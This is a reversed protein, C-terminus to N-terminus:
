PLAPLGLSLVKDGLARLWHVREADYTHRNYTAEIEPPMHGLIAEAVDKPCGLAALMTRASRRLDHPSGETVPLVARTRGLRKSKPSYPQLDYIYTSFARQSYPEGTRDMFMVGGEGASELRRTVIERAMGLLPVRLDTAHEHRANKTLEKPITWWLVGDMEEIHDARMTFLEGGRVGTLLQLLVGDRGNAHMHEVVWPLLIQLEQDSLVRRKQGQHEGGVIKGKSKLRGKMVSRWWNPVDGDLLGADLAYDWASGMMSRVKQAATPTKKMSELAQFAHQRKVDKAAMNALTKNAALFRTLASAAAAAGEPKRADNIHGQIFDNVLVEVTYEQPQPEQAQKAAEKVAQKEAKRLEAIDVGAERESRARGWEAVAEHFSMEPWCGLKVQKLQGSQNRYRYTWSKKTKGVELRLGPCSKVALFEGAVLSKAARVDFNM